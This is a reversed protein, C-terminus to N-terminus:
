LGSSSPTADGKMAAKWKTIVHHSIHSPVLLLQVFGRPSTLVGLKEDRRTQTGLGIGNAGAMFRRNKGRRRWFRSVMDRSTGRLVVDKEELRHAIGVSETHGDQVVRPRSTHWRRYGLRRDLPRSARSASVSAARSFIVSICSRRRVEGRIGATVISSVM